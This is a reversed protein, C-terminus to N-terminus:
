DLGLLWDSQCGLHECLIAIRLADPSAIGREYRYITQKDLAVREALEAQSWRLLRRKESLRLGFQKQWEDRSM